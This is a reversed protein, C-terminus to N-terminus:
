KKAMKPYIALGLGLLGLCGAVVLLAEGFVGFCAIIGLAGPAIVFPLWVLFITALQKMESKGQAGAILIASNIFTFIGITVGFFTMVIMGIIDGFLLADLAILTMM